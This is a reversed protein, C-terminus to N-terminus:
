AKAQVIRIDKEALNKIMLQDINDDTVICDIQDLTAVNITVDKGFKSSDSVVFIERSREIIRKRTLAEHMNFDSIGNEITIGSACIFSKQINLQSFDFIYDYSVVSCESHRIRGGIIIIEYDTSLLENVVHISNTVITLNKKSDLYKAIQYTTSGSDIFICDNDNILEVCKRGINQKDALRNIMRNEIATEYNSNEKLKAGGYVKQIKGQKELLNLDRRVTEISINFSEMFETITVVEKSRLLEIIKNRRESPLM